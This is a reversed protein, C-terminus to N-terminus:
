PSSHGEHCASLKVLSASVKQFFIHRTVYIRGEGFECIYQGDGRGRQLFKELIQPATERAASRM